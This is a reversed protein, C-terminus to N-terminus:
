SEAPVPKAGAGTAIADIHEALRADIEADTLPAAEAM